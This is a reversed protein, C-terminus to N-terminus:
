SGRPRSRSGRWPRQGSPASRRFISEEHERARWEQLFARHSCGGSAYKCKYVHDGAEWRRQERAKMAGLEELEQLARRQAMEESKREKGKAMQEAEPTAKTKPAAAAAGADPNKLMTPQLEGAAVYEKVWLKRLEAAPVFRGEGVGYFQRLRVGIFEGGEDYEFKRDYISDIGSYPKPQSGKGKPEQSRQGLDVAANATGQTPFADLAEVIEVASTVSGGGAKAQDLSSQAQQFDTDTLDKGDGVESIAHRYLRAGCSKFMRALSTLLATCTFNGAGDSAMAYVNNSPWEVLLLDLVVKLMNLTHYWSQNSDDCAIRLNLVEFEGAAENFRIATAGFLSKGKKGFNEQQTERNQGPLVKAKYDVILLGREKPKERVWALMSEKIKSSLSKRMLHRVFLDLYKCGLTLEELREDLEALEDSTVAVPVAAAAIPVAATAVPVAAAAAVPTTPVAAAADDDDAAVPLAPVAATADGEFYAAATLNAATAAATAASTAAAVPLAAAAARIREAAEARRADIVHQLDDLVHFRENCEACSMSHDHACTVGWEGVGDAETPEGCSLAYDICLDACSTSRECQRRYDHTLYNRLKEIRQLFSQETAKGLCLAKVLSVLAVFNDHGYEECPGCLCSKGVMLRLQDDALFELFKSRSVRSHQPTAEEYKRWLREPRVKLEAAVVRGSASSANPNHALLQVFAPDNIFANLNAAQEPKIRFSPSKELM